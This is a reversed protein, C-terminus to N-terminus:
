NWSGRGGTSRRVTEKSRSPATRYRRWLRVRRDTTPPGTHEIDGWRRDIERPAPDDLRALLPTAPAAQRVGHVLCKRATPTGIDCALKIMTGIRLRV